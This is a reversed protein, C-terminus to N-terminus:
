KYRNKPFSKMLDLTAQGAAFEHMDFKFVKGILGYGQVRSIKKNYWIKTASQKDYFVAYMEATGTTGQPLNWGKYVDKLVPLLIWRSNPPGLKSIWDTNAQKIDEDTINDVLTRDKVLSFKYKKLILYRKIESHVRRNLEEIKKEKDFRLDVVPLVFIEDINEQDFTNSLFVPTTACGILMLIPLFILLLVIPKNCLKM